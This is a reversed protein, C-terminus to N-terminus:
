EKNIGFSAIQDEVENQLDMVALELLVSFSAENRLSSELMDFKQMLKIAQMATTKRQVNAPKDYLNTYFDPNQYLKKTLMEMQAYYSPNEGLITLAETSTPVGLQRLVYVMYPRVAMPDTAPGSGTGTPGGTSSSSPPPERRNGETKLASVAYFSNEAVSRKAVISRMDLYIRQANRLRIGGKEELLRPPIRAFNDHGFLNAAMALLHEEDANNIDDTDNIIDENTLDVTMTRPINVLNFYDVDKDIRARQAGGFNADDWRVTADCFSTLASSRDMVNCFTKKFQVLRGFRALSGGHAGVTDSQGLQRDQSRQSLIVAQAEGKLETAALSKMMTGFECMGTSPHYDKHAQARLEQLLLQSDMQIEADIFMGVAMAQQMAVVSFQEASLMMSPLITREWMNEIIYIQAFKFMEEIKQNFEEIVEEWVIPAAIEVAAQCPICAHAKSIFTFNSALILFCLVMYQIYPSKKGRYSKQVTQNKNIM